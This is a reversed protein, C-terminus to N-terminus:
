KGDNLAHFNKIFIACKEFIRKNMKSKHLVGLNTFEGHQWTPPIVQQRTSFYIGTRGQNAYLCIFSLDDQLIYYGATTNNKSM